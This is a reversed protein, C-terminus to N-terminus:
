VVACRPTALATVAQVADVARREQVIGNLTDAVPGDAATRLAPPGFDEISRL